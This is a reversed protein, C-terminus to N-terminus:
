LFIYSVPRRARRAGRGGPISRGGDEGVVASVAAGNFTPVSGTAVDAAMVKGEVVHYKFIGGLDEPRTLLSTIDLGLAQTAADNPAVVTFPGEGSLADVLGRRAAGIARRLHLLHPDTSPPSSGSTARTAAAM